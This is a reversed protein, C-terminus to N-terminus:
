NDDNELAKQIEELYGYGNREDPELYAGEGWENWANIFLNTSKYESHIKKFLQPLYVGFKEPSADKYVIGNKKRPTNDWDVFAGAVAKESAVKHKLICEWAKDYNLVQLKPATRKRKLNNRIFSTASSWYIRHATNKLQNRQEKIMLKQTYTPQFEVYFDCYKLYDGFLVSDPFQFGIKVDFGLKKIEKRLDDIYKRCQIILEPKYILLLPRGDEKIYREDKFFQTLYQAHRTINDRDGYNQEVIVENNGGDWRRTWNENAWCMCYPIDVSKDKLMMELPKELLKKGEAFWYHYYCFGYVGYKKALAAQDRMVGPELLNYYHQNLPVRPQNHGDFLPKAKKVNTWETFGKGYSKDNEPIAHFQPLYFAIVKINSM